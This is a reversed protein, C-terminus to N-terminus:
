PLLVERVADLPPEPTTRAYPALAADMQEFAKDLSAAHWATICGHTGAGPVNASLTYYIMAGDAAHRYNVAEVEVSYVVDGLGHMHLLDDLRRYAAALDVM